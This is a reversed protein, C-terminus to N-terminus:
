TRWGARAVELPHDAFEKRLLRQDIPIAKLAKVITASPEGGDYPNPAGAVAARFEPSAARRVAAAIETIGYGVDIV